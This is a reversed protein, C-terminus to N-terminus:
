LEPHINFLFAHGTGGYLWGDSMDNGMYELCGKLCGMHSIWRPRYGLAELTKGM